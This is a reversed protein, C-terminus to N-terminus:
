LLLNVGYVCPTTTKLVHLRHAFNLGLQVTKNSWFDFGM